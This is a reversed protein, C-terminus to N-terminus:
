LTVRKKHGRSRSAGVRNRRQISFGYDVIVSIYTYKMYLIADTVRM